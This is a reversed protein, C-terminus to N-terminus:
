ILDLIAKSQNRKVKGTETEKFKEITYIAKPISYKNLSTFSIKSTDFTTDAEIILIIKEGLLEDNITSIFFRHNPLLKSIKLELEEAQIKIGGTNIVNDKRGLWLFSTSSILNIKDNTIIPNNSIYPANITLCDDITKNFTVSPLAQFHNDSNLEKLAVHTITETMGFTSYCKTNYNKLSNELTKDVPAGGIILTTILNLKEPNEIIISKVQMPTMAAFDIQTTINKLPNRSPPVSILDLKSFLARILMLKGAIYNTPLCLLAKDKETLKFFSVTLEASKLVAKKKLTITKPKGTSGSTLTNITKTSDFWEELFEINDIEYQEISPLQSLDEKNSISHGNISFM